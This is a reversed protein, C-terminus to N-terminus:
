KSLAGELLDILSALESDDIERARADGGLRSTREEIDTETEKQLLLAGDATNHSEVLSVFVHGVAAITLRQCLRKKRDNTKLSVQASSDNQRCLLGGNRWLEKVKARSDNDM